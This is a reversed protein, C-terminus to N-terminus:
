VDNGMVKLTAQITKVVNSLNDVIKDQHEFRNDMEKTLNSAVHRFEDITKQHFNENFKEQQRLEYM